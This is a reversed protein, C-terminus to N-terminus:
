NEWKIAQGCNPCYDYEEYDVEYSKSCNPCTWTDYVLQGNWYGDGSFYPTKPIQKAVANKVFECDCVACDTCDCTCDFYREM